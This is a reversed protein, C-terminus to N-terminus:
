KKKNTLNDDFYETVKEMLHVRDIGRVNHEHGPYVFYDMQKKQKICSELFLLSHQWVVTADMTGHIVLLKGQLNSTRTELASAAYGDPNEAPTDMYREGYMVEYYKWDIVPGGAVAVKFVGPHHLMMSITMFGGFSWGHIGMRSTDAWRQQQLWQVGAMQDEMEIKGLHRHIVQEFAMGRNSSGRNDLCFVVYGKQAMYYEWLRAGGLWTNTVLQDHPGGYVYVIVPYKKKPNFNLPKILRCYLDTTQDISKIKFIEMSGLRYDKLPNEAEVITHITNGEHDCIKAVKPTLTNEYLDLIYQGDASVAGSHTGEQMSVQKQTGTNLDARVWQMGLPNNITGTVFVYRDLSDIEPDGTIGWSGKTVQRLLKGDTNYLYIHRFGDRQSIWLFQDPHKHLFYLPNLPEVYATDTEMFLSKSLRGTSVEYRNLVLTDQGRNLIAAFVYKEDPSWTVSTLYKESQDDKEIYVTKGSRLDYIGISLRESPMGAMPYKVNKVSAIRTEINVLPYSAVKSEDKRYYALYHGGPSWFLGKSIGFENRSVIQGNVIDTDENNTVLKVEGDPGIIRVNNDKTYAVSNAQYLYDYGNGSSDAEVYNRIKNIGTQFLIFRNKDRFLLEDGSIWSFDYFGSLKKRGLIQLEKNVDNLDCLSEVKSSDANYEQITTFDKTFVCLDRTPNWSYSFVSRPYFKGYQGLVADELSLTKNQATLSASYFLFPFLLIFSIKRM